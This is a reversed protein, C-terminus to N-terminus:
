PEGFDAPLHRELEMADHLLRGIGILNPAIPRYLVFHRPRRVSGFDGGARDRSFRLHYSRVAEGFEPRALSGRREPDNALDRLATAILREYRLRAQPGFPEHTYALIDVIDARALLSLRFDGM